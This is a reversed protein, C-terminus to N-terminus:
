NLRASFPKPRHFKKIPAQIMVKVNLRASFPKPRHFQTDGLNSTIHSLEAKRQVAEASSVKDQESM